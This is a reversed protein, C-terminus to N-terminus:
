LGIMRKFSDGQMFWKNNLETRLEDIDLRLRNIDRLALFISQKIDNSRNSTFVAGKHFYEKLVKTDSLILPTGVSVAEYAGCVLCNERSTLDIVLDASYLLNWYDIEELFGTFLIQQPAREIINKPGKKYNGTIYITIDNSIYKGANVVEQYPEDLGFTCIYVVNYKGRLKLAKLQPPRPLKDPLNLPKGSNKRVMNALSENTVLTIDAERQFYKYIFQLKELLRSEPLLGANHADVVLKYGFSKHLLCALSTLLVSPNQVILANPRKRQILLFSKVFFYPHKIIRPLSSAFLTPKIELFNCLELTRRHREWALWIITEQSKKNM